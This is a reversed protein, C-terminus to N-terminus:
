SSRQSKKPIRAKLGVCHELPEHRLILHCVTLRQWKVTLIQHLEKEDLQKVMFDYAKTSEQYYKLPSLGTHRKFTNSFSGLSDYGAEMSTETM